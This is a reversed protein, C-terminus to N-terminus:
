ASVRKALKVAIREYGKAGACVDDIYMVNKDEIESFHQIISIGGGCVYLKMLESNYEYKRLVAMIRDAYRIVSDQLCLFYKTSVNANGTRIFTEIVTRDILDGYNDMVGNQAAIIAQEVGMKETYCRTAVPQKGNMYMVNITGNGIDAVMSLGNMDKIHDVIAAYGQPHVTCNVVHVNYPKDKYFFSVNENKMLYRRFDERQAKVWTLPLGACIHVDAASVGELNLEEAIGMLTAAYYEDDSTKDSIFDKHGEGFTYYRNRYFLTKTKFTPETDSVIIGTPTVTNATKINGYGHDVGIFRINNYTLM